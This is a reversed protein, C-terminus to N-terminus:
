PEREVFEDLPTFMFNGVPAYRPDDHAFPNADLWQIVVSDVRLVKDSTVWSVFGPDIDLHQYTAGLMVIRARASGNPIPVRVIDGLQAPTGDSYNMNGKSGFRVDRVLEPVAPSRVKPMAPMWAKRRQGSKGCAMTASTPVVAASAMAWTTETAIFTAIMLRTVALAFPTLRVSSAPPTVISRRSLTIAVAM